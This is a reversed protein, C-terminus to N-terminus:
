YVRRVERLARRMGELRARERVLSERALRRLGERGSRVHEEQWVALEGAVTQQTFRLEAGLAALERRGREAKEEAERHSRSLSDLSRTIGRQAATMSGILYTPRNLALQLATSTSQTSHLAYYLAHIPSAETPTLTKTYRAMAKPYPPPLFLLTSVAKSALEHAEYIDNLLMRHRNISRLAKKTAQTVGKVQEKAFAVFNQVEVTEDMPVPDYDDKVNEVRAEAKRKTRENLMNEDLEQMLFFEWVLEHTAFTGHVLLNRFFNDLRLQVDRLVARSPKSPILFPSPLNFHTPLWSAPCETTLWNALREFDAISRKCTTVTIFHKTTQEGSKLVFRITADEVFFSRVVTTTRGNRGPPSALLVMDDIRNRVDDDKALEVATLGRIDKLTMDVRADNFLARVLDIRGYKSGVMLPTFRKDNIANVDADCRRLIAMTVSTDNVIHLLTNGKADVHDDLHLPEGDGQAATAYAMASRVMYHYEDHDYSRCLAFLPTQGNKDKLRWPLKKGFRDILHPQNFLYHAVCRGKSDQIRFYEQLQEDSATHEFTSIIEEVIGLKGSQVAASLLTTGENNVDDLVFDMRFHAPLSLLFMLAPRQGGDVTMMLVSNGDADQTQALKDTTLDAGPSISTSSDISMTRSHSTSSYGSSVSQSRPLSAMSVRKKVKAQSQEPPPTPPRQFPFVHELSGNVAAFEPRENENQATEATHEADESLAEEESSEDDSGSFSEAVTDEDPPPLLSEFIAELAQLDGTRAANWLLRNRKSVRRLGKSACSLHALVAEMTALAYGQEGSEVEDTFIFYRMYLLRSHLHRVGSRIVVVLLMSVLIDANITLPTQQEESDRGPPLETIIKQTALLIELMEQASSAVGMKKFVEVGKRLRAALERKGKMGDEIPIGVQAIDIDSMKRIKSELDSDDSKRISCVRPFLTRDHVQETVYREIMREVVPGTLETNTGLLSLQAKDVCQFLEIAATVAHELSTRMAEEEPELEIQTPPLTGSGSLSSKLSSVSSSLSPTSVQSSMSSSRSRRNQVPKDNAAVLERIVKELGAQMQRSIMPFQNLLDNFNKVEKKKPLSPTNSSSSTAAESAETLLKRRERSPEDSIVAPIIPTPQYAGILPRSIYYILWQQGDAADPYYIADQLLQAQNLTKFGKNSYVFTDKLIVTRGNITSYQKAKGKNERVNGGEKAGSGAPPNGGPVRLVHSALFDETNALDAYPTNSERDKGELLVSTTPVLIVHHNIPSCQSPLASRFFSRLFPNLPQM